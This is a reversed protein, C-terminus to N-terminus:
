PKTAKHIVAKLKKFVSVTNKKAKVVKPNKLAKNVKVKLSTTAKPKVTSATKNSLLQILVERPTAPDSNAPAAFAPAAILVLVVANILANRVRMNKVM